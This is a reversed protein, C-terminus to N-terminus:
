SIDIGFFRMGSRSNLNMIPYESPRYWSILESVCSDAFGFIQNKAEEVKESTIEGTNLLTNWVSRIHNVSNNKLIRSRNRPQSHISHLCSLVEGIEEKTLQNVHAPSLYNGITNIRRIQEAIKEGDYQMQKFYKLIEKDRKSESINRAKKTKYIKSPTGPMNHYLENFFYDVELYLPLGDKKIQSNRGTIKEYLQAFRIFEECDAMYRDTHSFPPLKCKLTFKMGRGTQYESIGGRNGFNIKKLNRVPIAMKWWQDFLKEVEAVNCETGIEYRKSFAAGTLNASTVLCWDDVIYIKAHISLLSRVETRPASTFANYTTERIFGAEADTIVKFDVSQKQWKCDLIKCIEGYEGIFPSVIWIRKTAKSCKKRLLAVLSDTTYIAAM